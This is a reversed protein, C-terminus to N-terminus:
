LMCLFVVFVVRVVDVVGDFVVDMIFVLVVACLEKLLM